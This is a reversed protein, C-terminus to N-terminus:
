LYDDAGESSPATMKLHSPSLFLSINTTNLTKEGETVVLATGGGEDSPPEVCVEKKM